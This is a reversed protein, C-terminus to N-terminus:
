RVGAAVPRSAGRANHATAPVVLRFRLRRGLMKPVRYTIVVEGRKNVMLPRGVVQWSYNVRRQLVVVLPPKTRVFAIRGILKLVGHGFSRIWLRVGPRVKEVIVDRRQTSSGQREGEYTVKIARSGGKPIRFAWRGQDNSRTVAAQRFGGRGLTSGFWLRVTQGVLPRGKPSVLRGSIRLGSRGFSRVLTVHKRFWVATRGTFLIRGRPAKHYNAVQVAATALVFRDGAADEAHLEAIYRGAPVERLRKASGTIATSAPLTTEVKVPCNDSGGTPALSVKHCANSALRDEALTYSRGAKSKVTLWLRYLGPPSPQSATIPVPVAGRLPGKPLVLTGTAPKVESFPGIPASLASSSGDANAVATYYRITHGVLEHAIELVSRGQSGPLEACNAGSPGCIEWHSETETLGSVGEPDVWQGKGAVVVQDQDPSFPNYALLEGALIAPAALNAPANHFYAEGNYLLADTGGADVLEIEVHHWGDKWRYSPLTYQVSREQPCPIFTFYGPLGSGQFYGNFSSQPACLQSPGAEFTKIGDIRVVEAKIGPGNPQRGTITMTDNGRLESPFSEVTGGPREDYSVRVGVSSVTFIQLAPAAGCTTYETGCAEIVEISHTNARFVGTLHEWTPCVLATGAPCSQEHEQHAVYDLDPPSEGGAFVAM